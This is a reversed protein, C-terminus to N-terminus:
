RSVSRNGLQDPISVVTLVGKLLYGKLLNSGDM